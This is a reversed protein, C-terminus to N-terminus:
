TSTSRQLVVMCKLARITAVVVVASPDFGAERAKINMFKEAGLDSGFGAETVVIDSLNRATETALISNCGHAINAFPGGHVLAPTGEITQVLNPKIADKLILTLAGEVKLDSVTIPKHHRTYGITIRSIKRKLRRYKPKSM